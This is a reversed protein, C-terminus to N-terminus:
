LTNTNFSAFLMWLPALFLGTLVLVKYFLFITVLLWPSSLWWGLSFVMETCRPYSYWGLCLYHWCKLFILWDLIQSFRSLSFFVVSSSSSGQLRRCAISWTYCRWQSWMWRTSFKVDYILMLFHFLSFFSVRWAYHVFIKTISLIPM